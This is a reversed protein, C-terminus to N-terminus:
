NIKIGAITQTPINKTGGYAFPTTGGSGQVYGANNGSIINYVGYLTVSAYGANGWCTTQSSVLNLTHSVCPSMRNIAGAAGGSVVVTGAALAVAALTGVARKKVTNM